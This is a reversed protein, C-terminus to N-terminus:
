SHPAPRNRRVLQRTYLSFCAALFSSVIMAAIPAAAAGVVLAFAATALLGAVSAALFLRGVFRDHGRANLLAILPQGLLVPLAAIAYLRVLVVSKEYQDALLEHVLFPAMLFLGLAAVAGAALHLRISRLMNVAETDSSAAAFRPTLFATTGAALLAIPQSWRSIAGLQAAEASGAAIAVVPVAFGGIAVALSGLGFNLSGRWPNLRRNPTMFRRSERPLVALALVATIVWSGAAAAATLALVSSDPAALATAIILMNGILIFGEAMLPSKVARVDAGAGTALNMTVVQACLLVVTVPSLLSRTLPLAVAILAAAILGHWLARILLWPVLDTHKGASAIERLRLGSAGFDALAGIAMAAGHVGVFAGFEGLSTRHTLVAFALATCGQAAAIVVITTSSGWRIRRSNDSRDVVPSTM